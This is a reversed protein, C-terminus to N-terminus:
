TQTRSLYTRHHGSSASLVNGEFGTTQKGRNVDKIVQVGIKLKVAM